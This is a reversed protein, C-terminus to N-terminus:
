KLWKMVKLKGPIKILTSSLYYASLQNRDIVVDVLSNEYTAVVSSYLFFDTLVTGYVIGAMNLYGCVYVAGEMVSGKGIRVINKYSDKRVANTFLLGSVFSSDGIDVLAQYNNVSDKLLIVSSPYQLVSNKGISISRNAILQVTGRFGNLVRIEPAMVIVDELKVDKNIEILSDSFLVVRGHIKQTLLPNKNSIFFYQTENEFSNLVSDAIKGQHKDQFNKDKTINLNKYLTSVLEKNIRPFNTDSKLINGYVLQSNVYQKGDISAPRIGGAPLFVNGLLKTNGSLQLPRQHDVLYLCSSLTDKFETGYLFCRSLDQNKSASKVAAFNYIGWYDKTIFVSDVTEGFLDLDEKGCTNYGTSDALVINISSQLNRQIRESAKTKSYHINGYYHLLLLSSIIISIVISIVLASLLTHAKLKFM